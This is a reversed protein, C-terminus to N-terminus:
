PESAGSIAGSYYCCLFTVRVAVSFHRWGRSRNAAAGFPNLTGPAHELRTDRSYAPVRGYLAQDLLAKTGAFIHSRAQPHIQLRLGDWQAVNDNSVIGSTVSNNPWSM